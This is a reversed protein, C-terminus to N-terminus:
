GFVVQGFDDSMQLLPPAVQTGALMTLLEAISQYRYSPMYARKILEARVSERASEIALANNWRQEDSSAITEDIGAQPTYPVRDPIDEAVLVTGGSVVPTIRDVVNKKQNGSTARQTAATIMDTIWGNSVSGTETPLVTAVTKAPVTRVPQATYVAEQEEPALLGAGIKSGLKILDGGFGGVSSGLYSGGIELADGLLGQWDFDMQERYEKASVLNM